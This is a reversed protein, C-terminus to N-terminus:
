CCSTWIRVEQEILVCIGARPDLAAGMRSRHSLARDSRGMVISDASQNSRKGVAEGTSLSATSRSRGGQTRLTRVTTSASTRLSRSSDLQRGLQRTPFIRPMHTHEPSLDPVSSRSEPIWSKGAHLLGCARSHRLAGQGDIALALFSDVRLPECNVPLLDDTMPLIMVTAAPV